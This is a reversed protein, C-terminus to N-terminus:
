REEAPTTAYPRMSHNIIDVFNTRKHCEALIDTRNKAASHYIGCSPPRCSTQRLRKTNM